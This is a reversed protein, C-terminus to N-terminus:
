TVVHAFRVCPKWDLALQTPKFSMKAVSGMWDLDAGGCMDFFCSTPKRTKHRVYVHIIVDELMVGKTRARVRAGYDEYTVYTAIRKGGLFVYGCDCVRCMTSPLYRLKTKTGHTGGNDGKNTAIRTNVVWRRLNASSCVPIRLHMTHRMMWNMCNEHLNRPFCCISKKKAGVGIVANIAAM